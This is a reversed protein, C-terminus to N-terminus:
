PRWFPKRYEAEAQTRDIGIDSLLRPDLKMLARRQRRRERWLFLTEAAAEIAAQARASWSAPPAAFALDRDDACCIENMYSSM